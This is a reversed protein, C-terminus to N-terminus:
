AGFVNLRGQGHPNSEIKRTLISLIENKEANILPIIYLNLNWDIWIVKGKLKTFKKKSGLIISIFILYSYRLFFYFLQSRIQPQTYVILWKFFFFFFIELQKTSFNIQNLLGHSKQKTNKKIVKKKIYFINPHADSRFKTSGLYLKTISGGSKLVTFWIIFKILSIKHSTPKLKRSLPTSNFISFIQRLPWM